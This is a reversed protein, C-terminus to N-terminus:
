RRRRRRHSRGYLHPAHQGRRVGCLSNRSPRGDAGAALMAAMARGTGVGGAALVPIEQVAELVECLLDMTGVTGRVHGGAEVGQAVIFDCGVTAAKIAEDLSGVQWAALAGHDHVIEV